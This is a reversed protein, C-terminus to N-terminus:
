KLEMEVFFVPKQRRIDQVRKRNLSWIRYTGETGQDSILTMLTGNHYGSELTVFDDSNDLLHGAIQRVGNGYGFRHIISEVGDLVIHESLRTDPKYSDSNVFIPVGGLSWKPTAM